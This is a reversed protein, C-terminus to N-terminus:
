SGDYLYEILKIVFVKNNIELYFSEGKNDKKQIWKSTRIGFKSTKVDLMKNQHFLEVFIVYLHPEGHNNPWWL